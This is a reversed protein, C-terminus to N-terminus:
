KEWVVALVSNYNPMPLCQEMMIHGRRFNYNELFWADALVPHPEPDMPKGKYFADAESADNVRYGKGIFQYPFLESRASWIVKGNRSMIVAVPFNGVQSYRIAAASLSVTFYEAAEKIVAVGPEKGKVFRTFWEEKMLLEVAFANADNESGHGSRVPIMDQSTCRKLPVKENFFHGIEHAIVFRRPGPEHISANIRILGFGGEASEYVIKGQCNKLPM